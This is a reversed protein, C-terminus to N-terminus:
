PSPVNWSLIGCKILHDNGSDDYWLVELWRPDLGNQIVASVDTGFQDKCTTGSGGEIYGCDIRNTKGPAIVLDVAITLNGRCGEFYDLTATLAKGSTSDTCSVVHHGNAFATNSIFGLMLVMLIKKKMYGICKADSFFPTLEGPCLSHGSHVRM